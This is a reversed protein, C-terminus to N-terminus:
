WSGLGKNPNYTFARRVAWDFQLNILVEIQKKYHESPQAYIKLYPPIIDHYTALFYTSDLLELERNFVYLRIFFNVDNQRYQFVCIGEPRFGGLNVTVPVVIALLDIDCEEFYRKLEKEFEGKTLIKIANSRDVVKGILNINKNLICEKIIFQGDLYSKGIKEIRNDIDLSDIVYRKRFSGFIGAINYTTVYNGVYSTVTLKQKSPLLALKSPSVACGDLIIYLIFICSLMVSKKM